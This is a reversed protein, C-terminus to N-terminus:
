LGRGVIGEIEEAVARAANPMGLSTMATSMVSLKHQDFVIDNIASALDQDVRSDQLVVAGGRKAVASANLQQEGMSASPLPVLIAPKGVIGLEAVSTAGSRGVVLDAAAYAMGMSEVFEMVRVSSGVENPVVATYNKGTQWLLQFPAQSEHKWSNVMSQVANNISRAGLSGGMVFVTPRVPDLGFARRAEAPDVLQTITSRVPNGLVKAHEQTSPSLQAMTEAYSVVLLRANPALQRNTKGLNVNSEMVVYPIGLQKAAIGAPYSIYAGTVVVVDPKFQQMCTRAKLVSAAIRFPLLLTDASITKKFGKIPMAVYPIGLAPVLTSEMRDQSGLWCAQVQRPNRRVLEEWVAVAPFIHGGTGGAAFLVNMRM